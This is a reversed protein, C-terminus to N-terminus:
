LIKEGTIANFVEKGVIKAYLMEYTVGDGYTGDNKPMVLLKDCWLINLYCELILKRLSKDSPKVYKVEYGKFKILQEACEKIQNAQKISGIIFIKM